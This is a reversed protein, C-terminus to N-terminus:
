LSDLLTAILGPIDQPPSGLLLEYCPVARVLGAIGTLVEVGADPLLHATDPASARLAAAPAVPRVSCAGSGRRPLLIAKLPFARILKDPVAAHLYYILKDNRAHDPDPALDQLFPHWSWDSKHTKGTSYLSYVTPSGTTSVACFDDSAYRLGSALCGLATNSKGAGSRGILLVGGQPTGVAGAHLLQRGHARMFWSLLGRVPEAANFRPIQAANGVCYIAQGDTVDMLSLQSGSPEFAAHHRADNLGRIEGRPTFAAKDVPALPFALGLSSCDWCHLTLDADRSAPAHELHSLAPAIVPTLTSGLFRIKLTCGAIDFWRTTVTNAAREALAIQDSVQRFFRTADVAQDPM